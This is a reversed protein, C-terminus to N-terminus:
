CFRLCSSASEKNMRFVIIRWSIFRLNNYVYKVTCTFNSTQQITIAFIFQLERTKNSCYQNKKDDYSKFSNERVCM